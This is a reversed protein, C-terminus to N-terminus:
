AMMATHLKSSGSHPRHLADYVSAYIPITRSVKALNLENRVTSIPSVLAFERSTAQFYEHAFHLLNIVVPDLFYLSSLNLVVHRCGRNHLNEIAEMFRDHDSEDFRGCLELVTVGNREREDIYM